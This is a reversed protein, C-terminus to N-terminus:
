EQELSLTKVKVSKLNYTKAWKASQIKNQQLVQSRRPQMMSWGFYPFTFIHTYANLLTHTCTDTHFLTRWTITVQTTLPLTACLFLKVKSKIVCPVSLLLFAPTRKRESWGGKWDGLGSETEWRLFSHLPLLLLLPWTLLSHQLLNSAPKIFWLLTIVHSHPRVVHGLWLCSWGTLM